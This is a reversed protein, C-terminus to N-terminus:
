VHAVLTSAIILYGISQSIRLTFGARGVNAARAVLARGAHKLAVTKATESFKVILLNSHEATAM